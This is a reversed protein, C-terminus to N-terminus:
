TLKEKIKFYLRVGIDISLSILLAAVAYIMAYGISVYEFRLLGVFFGAATSLLAFLFDYVAKYKWALIGLIIFALLLFGFPNFVFLVEQFSEEGMWMVFGEIITGRV